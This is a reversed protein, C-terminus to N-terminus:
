PRYNGGILKDRAFLFGDKFTIKYELSLQEYSRPLKVIWSAVTEKPGFKGKPFLVDLIKNDNLQTIEVRKQKIGLHKIGWKNSLNKIDSWDKDFSEIDYLGTKSQQFDQCFVVNEPKQKDCFAPAAFVLEPYAAINLALAIVVNCVLRVLYNSIQYNPLNLIRSRMRRCYNVM